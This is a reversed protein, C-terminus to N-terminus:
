KAFNDRLHAGFSMKSIQMSIFILFSEIPIDPSHGTATNARPLFTKSCLRRCSSPNAPNSEIMIIIWICICICSFVFVCTCFTSCIQHYDNQIDHHKHLSTALQPSPCPVAGVCTRWVCICLLLCLCLYLCICICLYQVLVLAGLVFMFVLLNFEFIFACWTCICVCKIRYLFVYLPILHFYLPMSYFVFHM